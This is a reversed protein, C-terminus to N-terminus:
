EYDLGSPLEFNMKMVKPDSFSWGEYQGNKYRLFMRCGLNARVGLTLHPRNVTKELAMEASKKIFVSKCYARRMLDAGQLFVGVIISAALCFQLVVM